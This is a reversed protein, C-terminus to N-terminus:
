KESAALQGVEAATRAILTMLYVHRLMDADTTDVRLLFENWHCGCSSGMWLSKADASWGVARAELQCCVCLVIGPIIFLISCLEITRVVVIKSVHSQQHWGDFRLSLVVASSYTYFEFLAGGDVVLLHICNWLRDKYERKKKKKKKFVNTDPSAM